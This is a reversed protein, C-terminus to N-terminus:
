APTEDDGPEEDSAVCYTGDLWRGLDLDACRGSCFPRYAHVAPRGCAPCPRGAMPVRASNPEGTM